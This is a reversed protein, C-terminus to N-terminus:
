AFITRQNLYFTKKQKITEYIAKKEFNEIKQKSKWVDESPVPHNQIISVSIKSATVSLDLVGYIVYNLLEKTYKNSWICTFNEGFIVM